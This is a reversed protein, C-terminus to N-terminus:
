RQSGLVDRESPSGSSKDRGVTFKIAHGPDYEVFICIKDVSIGYIKGM